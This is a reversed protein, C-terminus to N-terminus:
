KPRVIGTFALVALTSLAWGVIIHLRLYWWVVWPPFSRESAEPPPPALSPQWHSVVHLNIIPLMSDLSYVVSRYDPYEAPIERKKQWADSQVITTNTPAM